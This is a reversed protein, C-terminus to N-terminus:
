APAIRNNRRSRVGSLNERRRRRDAPACSKDRPRNEDLPGGILSYISPPVRARAIMTMGFRLATSSDRRVVKLYQLPIDRSREVHCLVYSRSGGCDNGRILVFVM